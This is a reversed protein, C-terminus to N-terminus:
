EGGPKWGEGGTTYTMVQDDDAQATGNTSRITVSKVYTRDHATGTDVEILFPEDFGDCYHEGDFVSQVRAPPDGARVADLKPTLYPDRNNFSPQRYLFFVPASIFDSSNSKDGLTGWDNLYDTIASAFEKMRHDTVAQRKGRRLVGLVPFLLGVLLGIIGIVVLLEILTFGGRAKPM